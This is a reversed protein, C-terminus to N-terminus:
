DKQIKQGKNAERININRALIQPKASNNKRDVRVVIRDSDERNGAYVSFTTKFDPVM